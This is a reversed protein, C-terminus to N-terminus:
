HIQMKKGLIENLGLVGYFIEHTGWDIPLVLIEDLELNNPKDRGYGHAGMMDAFDAIGDMVILFKKFRAERRKGEETLPGKKKSNM